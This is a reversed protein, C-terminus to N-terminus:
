YLERTDVHEDILLVRPPPYKATSAPEPWHLTHATRGAHAAM